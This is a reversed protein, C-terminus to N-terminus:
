TEINRLARHKELARDKKLARHKQAKGSMYSAYLLAMPWEYFLNTGSSEVHELANCYDTKRNRFIHTPLM